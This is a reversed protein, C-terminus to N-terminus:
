SLYVEYHSISGDLGPVPDVRIITRDDILDDASVARTTFVRSGAVVDQGRADKLLRRSAEIRCAITVPSGYTTSGYDDTGTATKLTATQNTYDSM